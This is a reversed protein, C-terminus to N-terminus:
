TLPVLVHWSGKGIKIQRIGCWERPLLVWICEKQKAICHLVEGAQFPGLPETLMLPLGVPNRPLGPVPRRGETNRGLRPRWRQRRKSVPRKREKRGATIRSGM